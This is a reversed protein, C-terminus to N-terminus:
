APQHAPRLLDEVTKVPNFTEIPVEVFVTIWEAMSGNWLGPHELAKMEKGKETKHTISATQPNVFRRLDFKEGRFNRIACVLDVPNFHTANQWLQKQAESRPDIQIAEIIQLSQFLDNEDVWFPGGGPEGENKVMGCVRLPRNLRDFVLARNEGSGFPEIRSPFVIHLKERCFSLADVWQQESIRDESLLHLYHFIEEQLSILYGCLLKKYLVTSAKLRDPVINDINKIFIIDGDIAHINELLAGHGGPRFCLRGNELRFPRNEMDVAITNTSSAQVSIQIDFNVDFQREYDPQVKELLSRILARHHDSVTLHLRCTKRSDRTYLAAEVLHEELATRAGSPYNHFKLLAKPLQGYDLGNSTLIFSLIDTFRKGARLHAWDLGAHGVIDQLDKVFAYRDLDDNFQVAESENGISGEELYRYWKAFMRSAAGSAPVFKLLRGKASAGDHLAILSAQQKEPVIDVGDGPRCPRNLRIYPVGRRFLAIQKLIEQETLGESKIQAIDAEKFPTKSSSPKAKIGTKTGKRVPSLAPTKKILDKRIQKKERVLRSIDKQRRTVTQKTMKHDEEETMFIIKGNVSYM